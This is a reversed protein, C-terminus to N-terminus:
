RHCRWPTKTDTFRTLTAPTVAGKDARYHCSSHRLRARESSVSGRRREFLFSGISFLSIFIGLAWSRGLRRRFPSIGLSLIQHIMSKTAWITTQSCRKLLYLTFLTSRRSSPPYRPNRRHLTKGDDRSQRAAKIDTSVVVWDADRRAENALFLRSLVVHPALQVVGGYREANLHSPHTIENDWVNIKHIRGYDAVALQRRKRRKKKDEGQRNGTRQWHRAAPRDIGNLLLGEPRPREILHTNTNIQASGAGRM